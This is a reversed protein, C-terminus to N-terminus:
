LSEVAKVFGAKDGYVIMAIDEYTQILVKRAADQAEANWVKRLEQLSTMAPISGFVSRVSALWMSQPVKNAATLLAEVQASAARFPGFAETM